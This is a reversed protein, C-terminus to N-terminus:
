LKAGQGRVPGLRGALRASPGTDQFMDHSWKKNGELAGLDRPPAELPAQPVQLLWCSLPSGSISYRSWTDQVMDHSWKKNGELAGLDRPPAELPAQPVQM